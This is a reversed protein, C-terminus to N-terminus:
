AVAQLVARFSDPIPASVTMEEGSLLRFTIEEAHLMLRPYSRQAARDGYRM